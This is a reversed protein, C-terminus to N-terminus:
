DVVNVDRRLQEVLDVFDNARRAREWAEREPRRRAGTERENLPRSREGNELTATERGGVVNRLYGGGRQPM